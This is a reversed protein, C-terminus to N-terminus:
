NIQNLYRAAAEPSQIDIVMNAGLEYGGYGTIRPAIEIHWHYYASKEEITPLSHIWWNMPPNVLFQNLRSTTNKLIKALNDGQKRHTTEFNSEHYKPLIWVEFPFRAAYFTFAIFHDNEEVVRLKHKQEHSILDCFVCFGNNNFYREAGDIERNIENPVVPSSFIQAHPHAISAGAQSLHNYIPMIHEVQSNQHHAIMRLQIMELLDQWIPLSFCPMSIQHEKIIILDHEGLAAKARFFSNEPYISRTSLKKEDLLFAPYKNPIVWTHRNTLQKYRRQYERGDSCFVCRENVSTLNVEKERKKAYDDPRKAREPAIVVWEGTIINQRLQPM